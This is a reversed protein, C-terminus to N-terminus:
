QKHVIFELVISAPMIALTHRGAWSVTKVQLELETGGPVVNVIREGSPGHVGFKQATQETGM